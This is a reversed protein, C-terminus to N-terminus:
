ESAWSPHRRCLRFGDRLVRIVLMVSLMMSLFIYEKRFSNFDSILEPENSRDIRQVGEPCPPCAFFKWNMSLDSCLDFYNVCRYNVGVIDDTLVSQVENSFQHTSMNTMVFGRLGPRKSSPM